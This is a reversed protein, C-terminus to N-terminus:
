RHISGGYGQYIAMMMEDLSPMESMSARQVEQKYIQAKRQKDNMPVRPDYEISQWIAYAVVAPVYQRPILTESTMSIGTSFYEMVMQDNTAAGVIIIRRKRKDVRYNLPSYGGGKGFHQYTPIPLSTGPFPNTDLGCEQTIPISINPNVTFNQIQGNVVFGIRTYDIFDKPLEVINTTTNIDYVVTQVGSIDLHFMNLESVGDIILQLYREDDASDVNLKNKLSALCYRLNVVGPSDM